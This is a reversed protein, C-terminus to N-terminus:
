NIIKALQDKNGFYYKISCDFVPDSHQLAEITHTKLLYKLNSLTYRKINPKPKRDTKLRKYQNIWYDIKIQRTITSHRINSLLQHPSVGTGGFNNRKLQLKHKLQSNNLSMSGFNSTKLQLKHKSPTSSSWGNMLYWAGQLFSDALDDRKKHQEFFQLKEPNNRIIYRCYQKGYFKNRDYQKHLHCEIYPGDYVTLKGKSSVFKVIRLQRSNEDKEVMYRIIFYNFLMMSFNKMLPNKTPQSELIVEQTKTFDIQDLQKVTLCALEYYELNKVTYFRHLENKPYQKSHIRCISIAPTNIYYYAPKDCIQGTQKNVECKKHCKKGDGLLDLVNWDYIHFQNGSPQDPNYGLSCYALHRIGIDFSTVISM